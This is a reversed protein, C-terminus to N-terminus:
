RLLNHPNFSVICTSIDPRHNAILLNQIISHISSSPSWPQCASLELGRSVRRPVDGLPPAERLEHSDRSCEYSIWSASDTKKQLFVWEHTLGVM